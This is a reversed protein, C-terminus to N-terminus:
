PGPGEPIGNEEMLLVQGARYQQFVNRFGEFISVIVPKVVGTLRWGGCMKHGDRILVNIELAMYLPRKTNHPLRNNNTIRSIPPITSWWDEFKRKM